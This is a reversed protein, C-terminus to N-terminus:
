YTLLITDYDEETFCQYSWFGERKLDKMISERTKESVPQLPLRPPGVPIGSVIEFMAKACPIGGGHRSQINILAQAKKQLEQAANIEGKEFAAKMQYFCKGMYPSTIIDPIGLSLTPLYQTETGYFIKYRGNHIVSCNLASNLDPTTHKLGYLTPLKSNALDLFKPINLHVGTTQAYEYYLLPTNPAAEAVEELYAVLQDESSPKHYTPPLSAIADVGLQKAHKALEQTEKLNGAGIHLIIFMRGAAQKWKEAVYMREKNSMNMGEGLTGNVTLSSM